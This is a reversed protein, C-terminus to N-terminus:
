MCQEIQCLLRNLAIQDKEKLKVLRPKDSGDNLVYFHIGFQWVNGLPGLDFVDSCGKITDKFHGTKINVEKSIEGAYLSNATDNM